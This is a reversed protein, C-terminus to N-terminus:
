KSIETFTIWFGTAHTRADDLSSPNWVSGPRDGAAGNRTRWGMEFTHTGAGVASYDFVKHLAWNLQQGDDSRAFGSFAKSDNTTHNWGSDSATTIDTYVGTFDSYTTFIKGIGTALIYSNASSRQKVFTTTFIVYDSSNSFAYRTNNYYYTTNIVQGPLHPSNAFEIGNAASNVAVVQGATASGHQLKSLSVSNAALNSLDERLMPLGGATYNDHAVLTDKSTDLTIEGEAGTFSAHEATTGRRIKLQTAM